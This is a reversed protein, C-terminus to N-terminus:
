IAGDVRIPPPNFSIDNGANKIMDVVKQPTPDPNNSIFNNWPVNLNSNNTASIAQLLKPDSMDKIGLIDLAEKAVDPHQKVFNWPLRHDKPM